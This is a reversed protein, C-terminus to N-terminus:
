SRGGRPAVARAFESTLQEILPAYKERESAVLAMCEQRVQGVEAEEKEKLALLRNLHATQADRHAALARQNAERHISTLEIAYKREVKRAENTSMETQTEDNRLTEARTDLIGLMPRFIWRNMAWMFLLFLGVQVILTLNITVM